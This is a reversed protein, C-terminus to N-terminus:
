GKLSLVISSIKLWLPEAAMRNWLGWAPWAKTEAKVLAAWVQLNSLCFGRMKVSIGTFISYYLDFTLVIATQGLVGFDIDLLRGNDHNVAWLSDLIDKSGVRNADFTVINNGKYLANLVARGFLVLNVLLNGILISIKSSLILRSWRLHMSFM